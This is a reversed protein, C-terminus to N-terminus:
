RIILPQGSNLDELLDKPIRAAHSDPDEAIVQKL